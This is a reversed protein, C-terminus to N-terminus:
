SKLILEHRTKGKDQGCGKDEEEPVIRATFGTTQLIQELAPRMAHEVTKEFRGVSDEPYETTSWAVIVGDEWLSLHFGGRQGLPDHRRFGAATLKRAVSDALDGWAEEDAERRAASQEMHDLIEPPTDELMTRPVRMKRALEDLRDAPTAPVPADDNASLLYPDTVTRVSAEVPCYNSRFASIRAVVPIEALSSYRPALHAHRPRGSATHAPSQRESHAVDPDIDRPAMEFGVWSWIASIPASGTVTLFLVGGLGVAHKRLKAVDQRQSVDYDEAPQAAEAVRPSEPAQPHGM